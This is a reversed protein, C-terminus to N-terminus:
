SPGPTVFEHSSQIRHHHHDRHTAERVRNDAATPGLGV